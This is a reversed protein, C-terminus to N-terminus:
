LSEHKILALLLLQQQEVTTQLLAIPQAKITEKSLRLGKQEDIISAMSVYYSRLEADPGIRAVRLANIIQVEKIRSRAPRWTLDPSRDPPEGIQGLYNSWDERNNVVFAKTMLMSHSDIVDGENTLLGFHVLFHSELREIGFKNFFLVVPFGTEPLDVSIERKAATAKSAGGM